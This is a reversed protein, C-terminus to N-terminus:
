RCLSRYTPRPRGWSALALRGAGALFQCRSERKVSVSLQQICGAKQGASSSGACIAASSQKARRGPRPTVLAKAVLPHGPGASVQSDKAAFASTLEGM